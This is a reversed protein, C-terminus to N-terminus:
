PAALLWNIENFLLDYHNKRLGPPEDIGHYNSDLGSLVIRGTGFDGYLGVVDPVQGDGLTLFTNL